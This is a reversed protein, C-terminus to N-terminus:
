FDVSVVTAPRVFDLPLTRQLGLDPTRTDNRPDYGFRIRPPRVELRPRESRWDFEGELLELERIERLVRAKLPDIPLSPTDSSDRDRNGYVVIEDIADRGDGTADPVDIAVPLAGVDDVPEGLAATGAALLASLPLALVVARRRAAGNCRVCAHDEFRNRSM